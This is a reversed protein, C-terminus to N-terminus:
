ATRAGSNRHTGNSVLQRIRRAGNESDDIAM